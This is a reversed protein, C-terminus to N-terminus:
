RELDIDGLARDSSLDVRDVVRALTIPLYDVILRTPVSILGGALDLELCICESGGVPRKRSSRRVTEIHCKGVEAIIFQYLDGLCNIPLPELPSTRVDCCEYVKSDVAREVGCGRGCATPTVEEMEAWRPLLLSALLDTSSRDEEVSRVM